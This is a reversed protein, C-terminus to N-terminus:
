RASSWSWAITGTSFLISRGDASGSRTRLSISSAIPRSADPAIRADAFSPIPVSSIRSAITRSMGAGFPSGSPGSRASMKSEHNSGYWPATDSTRTTSPVSAFPSPMRRIATPLSKRTVRRQTSAGRGTSTALRPGPSTPMRDAAILSIASVFIPSVTVSASRGAVTGSGPKRGTFGM